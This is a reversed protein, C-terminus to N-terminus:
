AGTKVRMGATISHYWPMAIAVQWKQVFLCVYSCESMIFVNYIYDTQYIQYRHTNKCTHSKKLGIVKFNHLLTVCNKVLCRKLVSIM